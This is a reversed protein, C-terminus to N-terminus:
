GKQLCQASASATKGPHTWRQKAHLTTVFRLVIRDTKISTAATATSNLKRSRTWISSHRHSQRGASRCVPWAATAYDSFDEPFHLSISQYWHLNEYNPGVTFSDPTIQQQYSQRGSVYCFGALYGNQVRQLTRSISTLNLTPRPLRQHLNRIWAV